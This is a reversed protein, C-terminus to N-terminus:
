ADQDEKTTISPPQQKLLSMLGRIGGGNAGVQSVFAFLSTLNECVWDMQAGLSDLRTAISDLTIEEKVESNDNSTNVLSM